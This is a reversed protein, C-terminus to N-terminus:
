FEDDENESEEEIPDAELPISEISATNNSNVSDFSFSITSSANNEIMRIRKEEILQHRNQHIYDRLNPLGQVVNATLASRIMTMDTAELWEDSEPIYCECNSITVVGNFGGIAMILDDIVELGFNSRPNIMERIPSWTNTSIDFKEGTNMRALGNFGGIVYICNRLAVCSVGSRRTSMPPLLTWTNTEPDYYEATNLCENGNFGGTIYIKGNVTCADADSRRFHMSKIYSWQNTKVCYREVTNQRSRGDYGGLAYVFKGLVAVSVYCRRIHMPAIEKWTKRVPDFRTCTNFYETGNFGGIIYMKTGIVATGHYSRPGKLDEFLPAVRIWRDARTDYTEICSQPAGESWGGIAFIIEHPLRPVALSPTIFEFSAASLSQLDCLFKMAELVIPRAEENNEVYKNAKVHEMFYKNALLGLRVGNMLKALHKARSEPNFDIWRLVAEWVVHEDKANLLEDNIMTYFDDVNLNLLEESVCAIHVFNELIYNWSKELLRSINRYRSMIWYGICNEPSLIKIIFNICAKMLSVMGFYDAIAYMESVNKVDIFSTDRLYAFKIIWEIFNSPFEPIDFTNENQHLKTTFLANFYSSCACLIARHINFYTDDVLTHIVGDCLQNNQRMQYLKFMAERSM